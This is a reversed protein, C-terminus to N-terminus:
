MPLHRSIFTCLCVRLLLHARARVCVCVCVCVCVIHVGRVSGGESVCHTGEFVAACDATINWCVGGDGGARAGASRRGRGADEDAEGRSARRSLSDDLHDPTPDPPRGGSKRSPLIHPSQLQCPPPAPPPRPPPHTCPLLPLCSCMGSAREPNARACICLCVCLFVFVCPISSSVHVLLMTCFVDYFM